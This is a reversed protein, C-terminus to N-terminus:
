GVEAALEERRKAAAQEEEAKRAALHGEFNRTADHARADLEVRLRHLGGERGALEREVRERIEAAQDEALALIQEVKPGLHRYAASDGPRAARRAVTLEQQLQAIHQNLLSTQVCAEEREAALGALEAEVQQVYRDVQRKEYGRLAMEFVPESSSGFPFGEPPSAM